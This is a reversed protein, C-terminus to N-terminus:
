NDQVQVEQGSLKDFAANMRNEADMSAAKPVALKAQAAAQNIERAAGDKPMMVVVWYAGKDDHDEDVVSSSQMASKSLALTFNEQYAIASDPDVESSATFDRIMDQMFTVIQRSIEARARTAAYTRSQSVTSMKATGIGVLADEPTNKVADKVFQPVNGGIRREVTVTTVTAPAPAQGSPQEPAGTQKPGSACGAMALLAALTAASLLTTKRM